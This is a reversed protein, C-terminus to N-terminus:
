DLVEGGAPTVLKWWLSPSTGASLLRTSGDMMGVCIGSAHWTSAKCPNCGGKPPRVQFLSPEGTCEPGWPIPFGPHLPVASSPDTIDYCPVTGGEPYDANTCVSLKEAFFITNSTGDPVDRILNGAGDPSLVEGTAPDVTCLLLINGVYGGVGYRQPTGDLNALVGPGSTPDLPCLYLGVRASIVNGPSSWASFLQGNNASAYLNGQDLYPLLHFFFTGYAPGVSGTGPPMHGHADHCAQSALGIQKLNNLCQAQAAAERVKQVAPLLLGLLAGIIGVVVLLEILTLGRRGPAAHTTM